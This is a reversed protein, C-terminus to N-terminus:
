LKIFFSRGKFEIVRGLRVLLSRLIDYRHLINFDLRICVFLGGVIVVLAM